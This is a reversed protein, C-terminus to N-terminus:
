NPGNNLVTAAMIAGHETFAYPRHSARRRGKSTTVIQSWMLKNDENGVVESDSTAIQSRLNAWEQVTLQFM